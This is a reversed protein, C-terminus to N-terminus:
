TSDTINKCKKTPNPEEYIKDYLFVPVGVFGQSGGAVAIIETGVDAAFFPYEPKDLLVAMPRHQEEKSRADWLCLRGDMGWSLLLDNDSGGYACGFLPRGAIHGGDFIADCKTRVFSGFQDLQLRWTILHGTAVCTALQTGTEDWAFSTLHSQRGPLQVLSLCVGRGNMLRLSGDSLAVGLMANNECYSADFAYVLGRPNRAGGFGKNPEMGMAQSARTAGAATVHGVHVGYGHDHMDAFYLSFVENIRWVRQGQSSKETGQKSRKSVDLDWIHVHDDSSTLLVSNSSTDETSAKYHDIFQLAYVQPKDQPDEPEFHSMEAHDLTTALKWNDESPNKTHFIRVVGDASGSALVFPYESRDLTEHSWTPSAWAVRLCEFDKNHNLVTILSNSEVLFVRVTSDQGATALYRGCPSLQAGLIREKNGLCVRENPSSEHDEGKESITLRADFTKLLDAASRVAESRLAVSRSNTSSLPVQWLDEQAVALSSDELKMERLDLMADLFQEQLVNREHTEEYDNTDNYCPQCYLYPPLDDETDLVNEASIPADLDVNLAELQALIELANVQETREEDDEITLHPQSFSNNEFVQDLENVGIFEDIDHQDSTNLIEIEPLELDADVIEPLEPLDAHHLVSDEDSEERNNERYPGQISHLAVLLEEETFGEDKGEIPMPLPILDDEDNLTELTHDKELVKEGDHEPDVELQGFTEALARADDEIRKAEETM